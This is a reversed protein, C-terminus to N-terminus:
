RLAGPCYVTVADRVFAVAERYPMGAANMSLAFDEASYGDAISACVNKATGIASSPDRRGVGDRALLQIFQADPPLQEPVAVPQPTATVTVTSAPPPAVVTPPPPSPPVPAAVPPAAVPVEVRRVVPQGIVYIIGALAAAAALILAALGVPRWWSARPQPEAWPEASYATPTSPASMTIDAETPIPDGPHDM